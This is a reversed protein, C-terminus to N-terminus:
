TYNYVTKRSPHDSLCVIKVIYVYAIGVTRAVQEYYIVTKVQHTHLLICPTFFPNSVEAAPQSPPLQRTISGDNSDSSENEINFFFLQLPTQNKESTLAHSNWSRQFEDISTNIRHTIVEHAWKVKLLINLM